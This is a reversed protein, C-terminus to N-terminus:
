NLWQVTHERIEHEVNGLGTHRHEYQLGLYQAHQEALAELKDSKTQSLYVIRRYNGFYTTALEPHKDLGLGKKVLRDFHRTLFDTLYFTGPEANGLEAFETEGAFFEYCHAGPLREINFETLVQDLLGGTGCDAYAVFIHEFHERHEEITAKVAAPIREPRNHLEAPLCQIKIHSWDNHKQLAAIEKALAGCAILLVTPRM